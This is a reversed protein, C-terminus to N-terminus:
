GELSPREPAPGHRRDHLALDDRLVSFEDRLPDTAGQSRWLNVVTAEGGTVYAVLVNQGRAIPRGDDSRALLEFRGRQTVVVVKGPREGVPLVIRGSTGALWGLGVDGSADGLMPHVWHAVIGSVTLAVVLAWPPATGALTLMSGVVGFGALQLTWYRLPAAGSLTASSTPTTTLWSAGAIATSLALSAIFLGLM